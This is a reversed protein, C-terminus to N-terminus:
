EVQEKETEKKEKAEETKVADLAVPLVKNEQSMAFHVLVRHEEVKEPIAKLIEASLKKTYVVITENYAADIVASHFWDKKGITDTLTQLAEEKTMSM